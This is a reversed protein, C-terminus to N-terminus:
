NRRFNISTINTPWSRMAELTKFVRSRVIKYRPQPTRVQRANL